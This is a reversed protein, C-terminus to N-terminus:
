EEELYDQLTKFLAEDIIYFNDPNDLGGFNFAVAWHPKGMGFAEEKITEIWERKISMSKKETMATKCEICFHETRVDGKSFKTAGSNATRRGKLNKAVRKEQAKSYKRTNMLM